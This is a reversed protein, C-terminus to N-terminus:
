FISIDLVHNTVRKMIEPNAKRKIVVDSKPAVPGRPKGICGSVKRPVAEGIAQFFVADVIMAGILITKIPGKNIEVFKKRSSGGGGKIPM